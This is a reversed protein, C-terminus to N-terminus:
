ITLKDCLQRMQRCARYFFPGVALSVALAFWIEFFGCLFRWQEVTFFSGRRMVILLPNNPLLASTGPRRSGAALNNSTQLSSMRVHKLPRKAPHAASVAAVMPPTATDDGLQVQTQLKLEHMEVLLKDNHFRLTNNSVICWPRRGAVTLGQLRAKKAGPVSSFGFNAHFSILRQQSLAWLSDSNGSAFVAPPLAAISVTYSHHHSPAVSCNLHQELNDKMTSQDRRSVSRWNCRRRLLTELTEQDGPKLM